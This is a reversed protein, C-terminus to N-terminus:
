KYPYQAYLLYHSILLSTVNKAHFVSFGGLYSTSDLLEALLGSERLLCEGPFSSDGCGGDRLDLDTPASVGGDARERLHHADEVRADVLEHLSQELVIVLFLM